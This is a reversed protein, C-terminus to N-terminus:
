SACRTVITKGAQRDAFVLDGDIVGPERLGDLAYHELRCAFGPLIERQGNGSIGAIGVVEGERVSLDVSSVAPVGSDKNASIGKLELAVPGEQRAAKEVCANDRQGGM